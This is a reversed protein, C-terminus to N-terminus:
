VAVINLNQGVVVAVVKETYPPPLAPSNEYAPPLESESYSPPELQRHRTARRTNTTSCFKVCCLCLCGFAIGLLVIMAFGIKLVGHMGVLSKPALTSEDSHSQARRLEGHVYVAVSVEGETVHVMTEFGNLSTYGAGACSGPAAHRTREDKLAVATPLWFEVCREREDVTEVVNGEAVVAHREVVFMLAPRANNTPAGTPAHTTPAHTPTHTRVGAIDAVWRGRAANHAASDPAVSEGMENVGLRAQQEATYVAATWSGM